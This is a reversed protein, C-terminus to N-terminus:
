RTGVCSLRPRIQWGRSDAILVAYPSLPKLLFPRPCCARIRRHRRLHEGRGFERGCDNCRLPNASSNQSAM